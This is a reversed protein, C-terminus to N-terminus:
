QKITYIQEPTVIRHIRRDCDETQLEGCIQFPYAVAIRIHEPEDEFFRDYYGGGYGIRDGAPSFAMGPTIVPANRDDAPECGQVPELIGKCGPALEEMRSVLYFRIREGEVRPVAVRRDQQRLKEMLGVTDVEGGYSMYSYIVKAESLEKMALLKEMIQEDMRRKEAADLGRRLRRIRSRVESKPSSSM